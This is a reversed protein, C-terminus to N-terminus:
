YDLLATLYELHDEREVGQTDFADFFYDEVKVYCHSFEGECYEAPITEYGELEDELDFVDNVVIESEIGISALQDHMKKAFVACYGNAIELVSSLGYGLIEDRIEEAVQEVQNWKSYKM